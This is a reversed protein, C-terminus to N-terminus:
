CTSHGHHRCCLIHAMQSTFLALIAEMKRRGKRVQMNYGVGRRLGRTAEGAKQAYRISGGVVWDVEDLNKVPM